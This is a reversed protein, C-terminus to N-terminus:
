SLAVGQLLGFGMMEAEDERGLVKVGSRAVSRTLVEQEWLFDRDTGRIKRYFEHPSDGSAAHVPRLIEVEGSHILRDLERQVTDRDLGVYSMLGAGTMAGSHDLCSRLLKRVHEGQIDDAKRVMM